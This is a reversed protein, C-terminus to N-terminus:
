FKLVDTKQTDERRQKMLQQLPSLQPEPSLGIVSRVADVTESAARAIPHRDAQSNRVLKVGNTDYRHTVVRDTSDILDLVAISLAMMSVLLALTRM